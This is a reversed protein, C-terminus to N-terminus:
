RTNGDIMPVAPHLRTMITRPARATAPPYQGTLVGNPWRLNPSGLM